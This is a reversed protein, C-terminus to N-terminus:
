PRMSRADDRDQEDAERLYRLSEAISALSERETPPREAPSGDAREHLSWVPVPFEVWHTVGAFRRGHGVDPDAEWLAGHEVERRLPWGSVVSGDFILAVRGTLDGLEGHEDRPPLGDVAVEHVRITQEIM